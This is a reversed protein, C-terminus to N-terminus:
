GTSQTASRLLASCSSIAASGLTGNVRWTLPRPVMSVYETRYSQGTVVPTMMPRSSASSLRNMASVSSSSRTANIVSPSGIPAAIDTVDSPLVFVAVGAPAPWAPM